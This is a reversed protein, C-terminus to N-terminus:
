QYIISFKVNQFLTCKISKHLVDDRILNRDLAANQHTKQGNNACLNTTVACPM